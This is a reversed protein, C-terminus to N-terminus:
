SPRSAFHLRKFYMYKVLCALKAVSIPGIDVQPDCYCHNIIELTLYESM